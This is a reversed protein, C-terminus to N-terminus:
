GSRHSEPRQAPSVPIHQRGTIPSNGLFFPQSDRQPVLDAAVRVRLPHDPSGVDFQPSAQGPSHVLLAVLLLRDGHMPAELLSCLDGLVKVAIQAEGTTQEGHAPPGFSAVVATVGIVQGGIRLTTAVVLQGGGDLPDLGQAVDGAQVVVVLVHVAVGFAPIRRQDLFPGVPRQNLAAPPHPAPRVHDARSAPRAPWAGSFRGAM